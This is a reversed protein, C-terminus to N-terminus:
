GSEWDYDAACIVGVTLSAIPSLTVTSYTPNAKDNIGQNIIIGRESLLGRTQNVLATRKDVLEKRM